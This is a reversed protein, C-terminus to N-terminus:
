SGYAKRVADIGPSGDAAMVGDLWGAVTDLHERIWGEAVTAAAQDKYSYDYIWQSQTAPKVDLNRLFGVLQPNSKQWRTAVVTYVTSEMNAIPSDSGDKLFRIDFKVNMWHPKWGHFVIPEGRKTAREVQALMGSTSSPVVTWDGLGQYDDDVAKKFARTMGAGPEIAYITSDFRDASAALDRVTHVGSKWVSAPVALGQVAGKLNAALQTASGDDLVPQLMDKHAPMWAGLSVDIDGSRMGQYIFSSGLESIRTEYGMAQMVHAVVQTKVTVGPWSQIGFKVPDAARAHGSTFTTILGIVAAALASLARKNM